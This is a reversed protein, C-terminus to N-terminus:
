RHAATEPVNPSNPGCARATEVDLLEYDGRPCTHGKEPKTPKGEIRIGYASQTHLHSYAAIAAFLALATLGLATIGLSWRTLSQM